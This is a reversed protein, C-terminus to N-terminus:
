GAPGSLCGNCRFIRWATMVGGRLVGYRSIADHGYASCTPSQLCRGRPRSPNAQWAEIIRLVRVKM